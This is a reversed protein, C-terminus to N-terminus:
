PSYNVSFTRQFLFGYTRRDIILTLHAGEAHRKTFLYTSLVGIAAGALVDELYHEKSEIRSWGVFSAAVHAPIGWKWGYRRQIFSSGFFALSTHGSPFAYPEGNPRRKNVAEKLGYTLVLTALFSKYFQTRGEADHYYLTLGYATTPLLVRLADGTLTVNDAAYLPRTVLLLLCPFLVEPRPMSWLRPRERVKRCFFIM